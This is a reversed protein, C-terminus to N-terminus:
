QFWRKRKFWLLMFVFTAILVVWLMPYSWKWKFEPMLEFNIGYIGAVFTLPIFITAMGTLADRPKELGQIFQQVLRDNSRRIEKPTGEFRIKGKDLM